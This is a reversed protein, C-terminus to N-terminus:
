LPQTSIFATVADAVEVPKLWPFSHNTDAFVVEQTQPVWSAFVDKFPRQREEGTGSIMYLTPQSIAGARQRDFRWSSLAELEVEFAAPADTEAMEVGGPLHEEVQAKWAPGGAVQMFADVAGSSDGARHRASLRALRESMAAAGSPELQAYIAPEALILSRVMDPRSVALELAVAGGYSHGFVHAREIGVHSMLQATDDAQDRISFPGTHRDSGGLGRRHYTLVRLSTTLADFLPLNANALISGHILVIADGDGKIRYELGCAKPM